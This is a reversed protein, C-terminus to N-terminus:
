RFSVLEVDFVLAENPCLGRAGGTGYALEPPLYLRIKGGEGVLPIGFQWGRILRNLPFTITTDSTMDFVDMGDNIRTGVYNVEVTDNVTPRESGGPADIIYFFGREDTQVALEEQEIYEEITRLDDECESDSGGCAAFFLGGICCLYFLSKM